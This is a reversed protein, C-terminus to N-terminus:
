SEIWAVLEEAEAETAPEVQISIGQANVISFRKKIRKVVRDGRAVIYLKCARRRSSGIVDLKYRDFFRDYLLVPQAVPTKTYGPYHQLESGKSM